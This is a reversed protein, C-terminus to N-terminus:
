NSWLKNAKTSGAMLNSGVATQAFGGVSLGQEDKTVTVGFKTGLVSAELSALALTPNSKLHTVIPEIAAEQLGKHFAKNHDTVAKVQDASLGEPLNAEYVAKANKAEFGGEANVTIKLEAAIKKSDSM